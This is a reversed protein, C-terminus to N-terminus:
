LTERPAVDRPALESLGAKVLAELGADPGLHGQARSVVSWADVPRFGLNVLASVADAGVNGLTMAGGRHDARQEVPAVTGAKERLEAVIRGALKVGVGPARVLATRDGAAIARALDDASGLGLIALATRAGVGQVTVLLRFWDRESPDAFGFLQIADERMVTEIVMSVRQGMALSGLTRGSVQVLYGVGGVDIVVFGDGLGDVMGTLKAIM